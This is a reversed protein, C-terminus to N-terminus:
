RNNCRLVPRQDPQVFGRSATWLLMGQETVISQKLVKATFSKFHLISLGWTTMSFLFTSATTALDPNYM